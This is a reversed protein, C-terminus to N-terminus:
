VSNESHTYTIIYRKFTNSNTAIPSSNNHPTNLMAHITIVFKFCQKNNDLVKQNSYFKLFQFLWQSLQKAM